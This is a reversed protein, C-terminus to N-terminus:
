KYYQNEFEILKDLTIPKSYYYGQFLHCGLHKLYEIQEKTETGECIVDINLDKALKIINKPIVLENNKVYDKIFSRDLKLKDVKFKMIYQLSSYGTGFDDIAITIGLKKFSKLRNQALTFDNVLVSETVEFEIKRLDVKHTSSLYVLKEPLDKDLFQLPSINISLKKETLDIHKMSKFAEEIVWYGIDIILGREEAVKIFEYPSVLGLTNNQWRLLVEYGIIKHDFDNIQPQFVLYFEDKIIAQRLHADILYEREIKKKLDLNYYSIHNEGNLNIYELSTYADNIMSYKNSHENPYISVGAKLSLTIHQKEGTFNILQDYLLTQTFSEIDKQSDFNIMGLIFTHANVQIIFGHHKGLSKIMLDIFLREFNEENGMRQLLQDNYNTISLAIISFYKLADFQKLNFMYNLMDINLPNITHNHEGLETYKSKVFDDSIALSKSLSVYNYFDKTGNEKMQLITMYKAFFTQDKKKQWLYGSWLGSQHIKKWLDNYFSKPHVESKLIKTSENVVEDIHHGTFTYFSDNVYEIKRQNNSIIVADSTRDAISRVMNLRFHNKKYIFLFIMFILVFVLLLSMVGIDVFSINYIVYNDTPLLESVSIPHILTWQGHTVNSKTNELPNISVYTVLLDDIVLYGVEESKINKLIEPYKKDIVHNSREIITHGYLIMPNQHFLYYGENNILAISDNYTANDSAFVADLIYKADANIILLGIKEIGDYLPTAIRITAQYPKVVEDNEVNLDLKSIYIEQDSLALAEEVYYRNSKDQLQDDAIIKAENVYDVRITEHGNNDIIRLQLIDPKNVSFRLFLQKIVEKNLANQDQIYDAMENSDKLVFLDNELGTIYGSIGYEIFNASAEDGILTINKYAEIENLYLHRSAGVYIGIIILAVILYRKMIYIMSSKSLSKFQKLIQMIKEMIVYVDLIYIIQIFVM